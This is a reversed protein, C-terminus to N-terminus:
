AAVLGMKLAEERDTHAKQISQELRQRRRLEADALEIDCYLDKRSAYYAEFGGASGHRKWAETIQDYQRRLDALYIVLERNSFSSPLM